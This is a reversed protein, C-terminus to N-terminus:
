LDSGFNVHLRVGREGDLAHGLYARLPGVPSRWVVGLGTGRQWEPAGGDFASGVDFFAAVGFTATFDFEYEISGVALRSGGLVRGESDTPGITEFDY